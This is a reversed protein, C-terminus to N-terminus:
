MRTVRQGAPRTVHAPPVTASQVGPLHVPLATAPTSSSEPMSNSHPSIKDGRSPVPRVTAPSRKEGRSLARAQLGKREVAAQETINAYADLDDKSLKGTSDVDLSEFMIRFPRVDDLRLPEGCLEVGLIQLMGVVFEIEDVGNGDVDLAM